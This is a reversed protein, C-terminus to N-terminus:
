TAAEKRLPFDSVGCRLAGPSKIQALTESAATPPASWTAALLAAAAPVLVRALASAPMIPLGNGKPRDQM